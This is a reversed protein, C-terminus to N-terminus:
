SSAPWYLPLPSWTHRTGGCMARECSRRWWRAHRDLVAAKSLILRFAAIRRPFMSHSVLVCVSPDHTGVVSCWRRDVSFRRVQHLGEDRHHDVIGEVCRELVPYRSRLDQQLANHDVLILRVPEDDPRSEVERAISGWDLADTFVLSEWDVSYRELTLM